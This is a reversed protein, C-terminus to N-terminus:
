SRFHNLHASDGIVDVRWRHADPYYAVRAFSTNDFRFRPGQFNPQPTVGLVVYMVKNLLGGHSVVLYRGPARHLLNLVAKGARLYLEWDGEGTEGFSDFPTMFAPPPFLEHAEEQRMGSMKGNDREMWLPDAEVPCHLARGVIQATELARALSSSVIADFYIKEGAWRRALADVQARGTESLPFDSQGQFRNEANGVSEGHRLFTIWYIREGFLTM